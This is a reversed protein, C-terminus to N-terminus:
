ASLIRTVPRPEPTRARERTTEIWEVKGEFKKETPSGAEPDDEGVLKGNGFDSATPAGFIPEMDIVVTTLTPTSPLHHLSYSGELTKGKTEPVFFYARHHTPANSLTAHPPAAGCIGLTKHSRVHVAM